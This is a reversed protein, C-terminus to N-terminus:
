LRADCWAHGQLFKKHAPICSEASVTGKGVRRWAKLLPCIDAHLVANDFIIVDNAYCYLGKGSASRQHETSCFGVVRCGGCWLLRALLTRHVPLSCGRCWKRGIALQTDLHTRLYAMGADEDGMYFRIFALHLLVEGKQHLQEPTCAKDLSVDLWHVAKHLDLTNLTAQAADRRMARVAFEIGVSISNLVKWSIMKAPSTKRDVAAEHLLNWLKLHWVIATNSHGL